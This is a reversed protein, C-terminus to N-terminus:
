KLTQYVEKIVIADWHANYKPNSTKLKDCFDYLYKSMDGGRDLDFAKKPSIGIKYALLDNLDETIPSVNKPLKPLGVKYTNLYEIKPDNGVVVAHQMTKLEKIFDEATKNSPILSEPILFMGKYDRREDLLDFIWMSSLYSCDVVFQIQFWEFQKLWENLRAKIGSSKGMCKVEKLSANDVWDDDTRKEFELKSIVNEKVWDDCREIDYDTFEAYFSTSKAIERMYEDETKSEIGKAKNRMVEDIVNAVDGSDYYDESVVAMSIPQADPSLSTFHFKVFLKIEEM